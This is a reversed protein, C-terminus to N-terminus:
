GLSIFTYTSKFAQLFVNIAAKNTITFCQFCVFPFLYITIYGFLPIINLVLVSHVISIWLVHTFRLITMNFSLLLFSMYRMTGSIYVTSLTPQGLVHCPFVASPSTCHASPPLPRSSNCLPVFFRKLTFSINTIM